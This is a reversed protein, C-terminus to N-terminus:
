KQILLTLTYDQFAKAIRSIMAVTISLLLIYFVGLELYSKGNRTTENFGWYFDADPKPSNVQDAALNVLKGLLIPDMLSFGMNVAALILILGVLLKDPKLYHLLVKM